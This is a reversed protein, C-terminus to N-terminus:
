HTSPFQAIASRYNNFEIELNHYFKQMEEKSCGSNEFQLTLQLINEAGCMSASGKLAHCFKKFGERHTHVILEELETLKEPFTAAFERTIKAISPRALGMQNQMFASNFILAM